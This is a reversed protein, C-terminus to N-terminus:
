VRALDKVNGSVANERGWHKADRVKYEVGGTALVHASSPRHKLDLM